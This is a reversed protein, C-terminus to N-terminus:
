RMKFGQSARKIPQNRDLKSMAQIVKYSDYIGRIYDNQVFSKKWKPRVKKFMEPNDIYQNYYDAAYCKQKTWRGFATKCKVVEFTQERLPKSVRSFVQSTGFIKIGQKRQQTVVKLLNIDFNKSNYVDFENQIEDICFIIGKDHRMELIQSWDTLVFDEHLYGFNTGILVDPYKHRIEELREVLSVTKGAGQMGTYITLGYENFKKGSHNKINAYGDVFLFKIFLIWKAIFSKKSLVQYPKKADKNKKIKLMKM